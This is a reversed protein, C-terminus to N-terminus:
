QCTRAPLITASVTECRESARMSRQRTPVESRESDRLCAGPLSMCLCARAPLWIAYAPKRLCARRAAARAPKDPLFLKRLWAREPLSTACAAEDRQFPCVPLSAACAPKDRLCPRAPLITACAPKSRLCARSAPDHCLCARAPPSAFAPDDRLCPQAPLTVCNQNLKEHSFRSGRRRLRMSSCISSHRDRTPLLM